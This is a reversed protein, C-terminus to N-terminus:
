SNLHQNLQTQLRAISKKALRLSKQDKSFGAKLDAKLKSIYKKLEATKKLSEAEGLKQIDILSPIKM